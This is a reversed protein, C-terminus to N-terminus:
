YGVPQQLWGRADDDVVVWVWGDAHRGFLGDRLCETAAPGCAKVAIVIDFVM